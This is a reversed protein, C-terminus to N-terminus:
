NFPPKLADPIMAEYRRAVKYKKRLLNMVEGPKSAPTILGSELYEQITEKLLNDNLWTRNDVDVHVTEENNNSNDSAANADDDEAQLFLLSQLSYRRFYTIISGMKQPDPNEPLVVASEILKKDDDFLYTKLVTRGDIYELPQAVVIGLEDLIPKVEEILTNIDFYKYKLYSNESDKKIPKIRKQLELLKM